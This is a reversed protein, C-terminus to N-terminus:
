GEKLTKAGYLVEEWNKRRTKEDQSELLKRYRRSIPKYSIIMFIIILILYKYTSIIDKLSMKDYTYLGRLKNYTSTDTSSIYNPLFETYFKEDIFYGERRFVEINGRIYADMLNKIDESKNSLILYSGSDVAQAINAMFERKSFLSYERIFGKKYLKKSYKKTDLEKWDHFSYGSEKYFNLNMSDVLNNFENYPSKEGNNLYYRERVHYFEHFLVMKIWIQKIDKDIDVATYIQRDDITGAYYDGNNNISKLLIINDIYKSIIKEPYIKQFEKLYNKAYSIDEQEYTKIIWGEAEKDKIFETKDFSVKYSPQTDENFWSYSNLEQIKEEEALVSFNSTMILLILIIFIFKRM